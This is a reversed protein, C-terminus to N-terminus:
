FPPFRAVTKERSFAPFSFEAGVVGQGMKFIRNDGIIVIDALEYVEKRNFLKAVIEPGIGTPDGLLLGIVPKKKM